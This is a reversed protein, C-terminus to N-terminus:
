SVRRFTDSPTVRLAKMCAVISAILGGLIGALLALGVIRWDLQTQLALWHESLPRQLQEGLNSPLVVLRQPPVLRGFAVLLLEAIGLGLLSSGIGLVMLEAVIQTLVQRQRWGLTRLMGLEPTRRRVASFAGQAAMLFTAALITILAFPAGLRVASAVNALSGTVQGATDRETAIRAGPIASELGRAVQAVQANSAARAVMVNIRGQRGSLRQLEDIPLYMDTTLGRLAPRAIGVIQYRSGAFQLAFGVMLGRATAYAESVIVESSPTRSFYTGAVISSSTLLGLGPNSPDVGTVSFGSSKIDTAPPNIVEHVVAEELQIQRLRPPLCAYYARTFPLPQGEAHAPKPSPPGPPQNEHLSKIFKAVCANIVQQDGPQPPALAIAQPEVTYEAIIDPVTGERHNAILTLGGVAAEVGPVLSARAVQEEPFTYATEPLFFDNEFHAGPVGLKALNTVAATVSAEREAQFARVEASPEEGLRVSPTARSVYLDRDLGRLPGLASAEAADMSAAVALLSVALAIGLGNVLLAQITRNRRRTTEALVYTWWPGM